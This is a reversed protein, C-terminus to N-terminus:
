GNSEVPTSKAKKEPKSEESVEEIMGPFKEKLVKEYQAINHKHISIKGPLQIVANEYQAKFKIM